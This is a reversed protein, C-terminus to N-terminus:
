DLPGAESEVARLLSGNRLIEACQDLDSKVEYDKIAHKIETRLTRHAVAVGHGPSFESRFDLAQASTLLEVALVREVNRL